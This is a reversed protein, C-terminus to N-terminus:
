QCGPWGAACWSADRKLTRASGGQPADATGTRIWAAGDTSFRFSIAYANWYVRNMEERPLNWTYRYNNGVRGTFTLWAVQKAGGDVQYEVQAAVREPKEMSDTLGPVYVEAEVFMSARQQIWSDLAMPDALGNVHLGERNFGNGWNGAWVPAMPSKALVEFRYNGGFNSDWAQCNNVDSNKFWMEASTASAPIKM